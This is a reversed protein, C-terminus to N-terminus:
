RNWARFVLKKPERNTDSNTDENEPNIMNSSMPDINVRSLCQRCSVRMFEEELIDSVDMREEGDSGVALM